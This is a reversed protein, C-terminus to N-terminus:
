SDLVDIRVAEIESFNATFLIDQPGKCRMVDGYDKTEHTLHRILHVRLPSIIQVIPNRVGSDAEQGERAPHLGMNKNRPEVRKFFLFQDDDPIALHCDEVIYLLFMLEQEVWMGNLPFVM